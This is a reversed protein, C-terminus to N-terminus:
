TNHSNQTKIIPSTYFDKGCIRDAVEDSCLCFFDTAAIDISYMDDDGYDAAKTIVKLESQNKIRKIMSLGKQNAALVRVYKPEMDGKIGLLACMCFRKIRSITYRKSVSNQFLDFSTPSKAANKALLNALGDEYGKIDALSEPTVKRWFGLILSDANSIHHMTLGSYDPAYSRYQEGSSILNRLASASKFDDNSKDSHYDNNRKVTYTKIDSGLKQLASIYNIGLINNPSFFADDVGDACQRLAYECAAPYSQGKDMEALLFQRFEPPEQSLLTACKNLVDPDGHESGFCVSNTIKIDSLLKMAGFAFNQASQLVYYAPLEIVLDAGGDIAAEARSWKDFLAPEGRQVMSGSMVCVVSDAGSLRRAESIHYQHGYHFPNYECVIGVTNEM